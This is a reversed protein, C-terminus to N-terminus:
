ASCTTMLNLMVSLSGLSKVLVSGTISSSSGIRSCDRIRWAILRAIRSFIILIMSIAEIEGLM